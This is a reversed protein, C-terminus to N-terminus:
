PLHKWTKYYIISMVSPSSIGYADALLAALTRVPVTRERYAQRIEAVHKENIKSSANKTGKATRGKKLCDTRNDQATGLWLHTPNCCSPVDCHHCVLISNPIPRAHFVEYLLRTVVMNTRYILSVVAIEGYGKRGKAAQWPWCCYPCWEEHSCMAINKWLRDLLPPRAEQGKERRKKTDESSCCERCYCHKGDPNRSKNSFAELSKPVKCRICTKM